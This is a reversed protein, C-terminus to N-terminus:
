QRGGAGVSLAAKSGDVNRTRHGAAASSRRHVGGSVVSEWFQKGHGFKVKEPFGFVHVDKQIM